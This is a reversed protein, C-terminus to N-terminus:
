ENGGVALDNIGRQAADSQAIAIKQAREVRYQEAKIAVEESFGSQIAATGTDIIDNEVLKALVEPDSIVGPLADIQEFIEELEGETSNQGVLIKAIQKSIKRQALQSPITHLLGSLDRAEDRREQPTLLQYSTPYKILAPENGEYLSFFFAIRNEIYELEDGIVKLGDEEKNQALANDASTNYVALTRLAQSIMEKIQGKLQEQKEMSIKLPDSPPSVYEPYPVDKPVRIGKKPGVFREKPTDFYNDPAEADYAEALFSRNGEWAYIIDTSGLNLLAIQHRCADAIISSSLKGLVFPIYELDLQYSDIEEDDKTITVTVGSDTKQYFRYQEVVEVPLGDEYEYVHDRLLLATYIYPYKPDTAWSIIDEAKYIYMYPMLYQDEQLDESRESPADVYVGVKGMMTLEPLVKTSIFRNMSSGARDVNYRSAQQYKPSGGLRNVFSLRQSISNNIQNMGTKVFSPIYTLRKRSTFDRPEESNRRYLYTNLFNEGGEGVTRLMRYKAADYEPHRNM